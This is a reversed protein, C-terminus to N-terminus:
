FILNFRIIPIVLSLAHQMKILLKLTQSSQLLNQKYM